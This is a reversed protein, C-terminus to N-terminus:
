REYAGIDARLKKVRPYGPGRQDYRFRLPNSGRNIAPSDSFLAHTPTPGGNSALPGIRPDASITDAPLPVMSTGILNHSGTITGAGIDYTPGPAICANGAVITSQLHLQMDGSVAGDGECVGSGLGLTIENAAITSNYIGAEGAFYAASGYYASNGSITSNFVRGHGTGSTTHIGGGAPWHGGLFEREVARNGSITSHSVSVEVASIGGGLHAENDHVTSYAAEVRVASVGGGSGEVDNGYVQSRHLFVEGGAVGGGFGYEGATNAFVRSYSLRVTSAYVGGGHASAEFFSLGHVVSCHHVSSGILEATGASYICGGHAADHDDVPVSQFRGYAISLGKLLLTGTGSHAFVRDAQNGDITLSSRDRGVLELDNQAIGIAGSTLVIRECELATLDIRDGSAASAVAARLSGPGSDNCNAVAISAAPAAVVSVEDRGAACPALLLLMSGALPLPISRSSVRRM